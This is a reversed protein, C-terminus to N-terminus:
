PLVDDWLDSATLVTLGLSDAHAVVERLDAASAVDEGVEPHARLRHYMPVALTRYEAAFELLRKTREVDQGNVRNLTLPGTSPVAATSQGGSFGLYFYDTAIDLTEAGAAGYPWIVFRAGSEFGHELMWLKADRMASRQEVAPYAPLPDAEQPHSVLDWGARDLTRLQDLTARGTLGVADPIVGVVGPYGFEELVPFGTEYQSRPGDDFTFMAYGEDPKETTRLADIRFDTPEGGTWVTVGIQRVDTLNPNGVVDTPGPDLRHWGGHGAAQRLDLRNQGDPAFLQVYVSLPASGSCHFALSPNRDSMDIGGPLPRRVTVRNADTGARVHASQSGTAYSDRDATLTGGTVTWPDLDAMDDLPEGLCRFAARTDFETRLGWGGDGITGAACWDEPPSPTTSEDVRNSLSGGVQLGSCGALAGVGAAGIRLLSRRSVADTPAADAQSARRSHTREDRPPRDPAM